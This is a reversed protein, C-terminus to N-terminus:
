TSIPVNSVTTNRISHVYTLTPAPIRSLTLVALRYFVVTRSNGDIILVTADECGPSVSYIRCALYLVWVFLRGRLLSGSLFCRVGKDFGCYPEISSSSLATHEPVVEILDDSTM